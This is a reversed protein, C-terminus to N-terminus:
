HLGIDETEEEEVTSKLFSTLIWKKKYMDDM